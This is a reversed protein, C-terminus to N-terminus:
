LSGHSTRSCLLQFPKRLRAKRCSDTFPSELSGGLRMQASSAPYRCNAALRSPGFIAVELSGRPASHGSTALDAAGQSNPLLASIGFGVLQISNVTPRDPSGSQSWRQDSFPQM